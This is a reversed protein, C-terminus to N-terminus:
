TAEVASHRTGANEQPWTKKLPANLLAVHVLWSVLRPRASRGRLCRKVDDLLLDILAVFLGVLDSLLKPLNAALLLNSLSALSVQESLQVQPSAQRCCVAM